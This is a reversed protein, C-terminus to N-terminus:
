PRQVAAFKGTMALRLRDRGPHAQRDITMNSGIASM